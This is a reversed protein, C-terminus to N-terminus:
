QEAMREESEMLRKKNAYNRNEQCVPCDGHNRCHTDFAKSGKYKKRREKGHQIAKDLSM